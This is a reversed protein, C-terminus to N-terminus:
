DDSKIANWIQKSTKYVDKALTEVDGRLKKGFEDKISGGWDKAIEDARNALYWVLFGTILMPMVGVDKLDPAMTASNVGVFGSMLAVCVAIVVALVIFYIAASVVRGIQAKLSETKFLGTFTNYITGPIGKYSTKTVTEAVATFPLMIIALFLDAIVGFAMFTFKWANVIFMIIFAVGLVFLFASTGISQKIYEWGLAVGTSFYGSLRTPLCMINAAANADIIATDAIHTSVYTHIAACTDPLQVGVVSSTVNLIIDATYTGVLMIPTMLMMFIKAPGFNLVVIWFSVKLTKIAIEKGLKKIDWGTKMNNYAEGMIWFVYMLLIFIIAFRALANDIIHAVHSLANMFAMGVKAEIPVYDPLLQKTVDPAFEAIDNQLNSVVMERNATTAWTGYDGIDGTNLNSAAGAAGSISLAVMVVSLFKWVRRLM